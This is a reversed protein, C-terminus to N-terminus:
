PFTSTIKEWINKPNTLNTFNTPSWCKWKHGFVCSPGLIGTPSVISSCSEVSLQSTPSPTDLDDNTCNAAKSGLMGAQHSLALLLLILCNGHHLCLTGDSLYPGIHQPVCAAVLQCGLCHHQLKLTPEPSSREARNEVGGSQPGSCM